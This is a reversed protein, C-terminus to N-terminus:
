PQESHVFEAVIPKSRAALYFAMAIFHPNAQRYLRMATQVTQEDDSLAIPCIVREYFDIWDRFPQPDFRMTPHLPDDCGGYMGTMEDASSRTSNAVQRMADRRQEITTTRKV